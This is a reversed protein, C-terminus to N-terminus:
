VIEEAGVAAEVPGLFAAWAKSEPQKGEARGTCVTLERPDPFSGIM